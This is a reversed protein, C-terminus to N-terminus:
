LVWSRLSSGLCLTQERNNIFLRHTPLNKEAGDYSIFALSPIAVYGTGVLEPFM